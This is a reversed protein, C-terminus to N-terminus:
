VVGGLVDAEEWFTDLTISLQESAQVDLGSLPSPCLMKDRM